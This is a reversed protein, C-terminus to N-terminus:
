DTMWAAASELTAHDFSFGAELLTQPEVRQSALIDDAFGGIVIRLAPPPVPILAPRRMARAIAKVVKGQRAPRPSAFNVPGAVEPHDLLFALARVEDHLTIWPWWAKGRGFPGGVGLRLMLLLPKMAGGAPSLVIGTRALAVSVGADQAPQTAREWAVVVETLFGEGPASTEDLPEEGRDGYIGVASGSVWRVLHGREALTALANALATTGHTRSTLIEMKYAPTWRKDGIGAGHLSVVGDCDAIVEPDLTKSAPDWQREHAARAPRRVLHVVDDGRERLYHTLASGILGSAGTIAIRM